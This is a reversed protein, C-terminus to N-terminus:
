HVKYIIQNWKSSWTMNMVVCVCVCVCLRVCVWIYIYIYMYIYIYNYNEDLCYNVNKLADIYHCKNYKNTVNFNWTKKKLELKNISLM